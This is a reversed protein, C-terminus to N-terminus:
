TQYLDTLMNRRDIHITLFWSFFVSNREWRVTCIIKEENYTQAKPVDTLSQYGIYEHHIQSFHTECSDPLDSSNM